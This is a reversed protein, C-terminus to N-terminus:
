PFGVLGLEQAPPVWSHTLILHPTLMSVFIYHPASVIPRLLCVPIPGTASRLADRAASYKKRERIVDICARAQPRGAEQSDRVHSKVASIYKGEASTAGAGRTRAREDLFQRM